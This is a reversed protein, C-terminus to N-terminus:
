FFNVVGMRVRGKLLPFPIVVLRLEEGKLLPFAQSPTMGGM